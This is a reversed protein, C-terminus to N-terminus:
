CLKKNYIPTLTSYNWDWPYKKIRIPDGRLDYSMNSTQGIRMNNFPFNTHDDNIPFNDLNFNNVPPGYWYIQFGETYVDLLYYILIGYIILLIIITVM